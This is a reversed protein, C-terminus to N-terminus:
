KLDLGFFQYLKSKKTKIKIFISTSISVWILGILYGVLVDSLFHVGLYLRSLGISVILLILLFLSKNKLHHKEQKWITYFIYGYLAMAVASHGSPMSSGAEFYVAESIPRTKDFINKLLFVSLSAGGVSIILSFIKSIQKHIFFSISSLITTLIVILYGGAYTICLMLFSLWEIRNQSFFALVIKDIEQMYRNYKM